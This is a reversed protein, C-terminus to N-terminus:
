DRYGKLGFINTVDYFHANLCQFTRVAIYNIFIMHMVKFM